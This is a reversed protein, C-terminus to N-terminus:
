IPSHARKASRAVRAARGGHGGGKSAPKGKGKGKGSKGSKVGKIGKGKDGLTKGKVSKDGKSSKLGKGKNRTFSRHSVTERKMMSRTEINMQHIIDMRAAHAMSADEAEDPDEPWNEGDEEVSEPWDEAGEEDAGETWGEAGDTWGEAGETWGEEESVPDLGEYESSRDDEMWDEEEDADEILLHAPPPGKPRTPMAKRLGAAPKPNAKPKPPCVLKSKPVAWTVTTKPVAGTSPESGRPGSRPGSRRSVSLAVGDPQSGQSQEDSGAAHCPNCPSEEDRDKIALSPEKIVSPMRVFTQLAMLRRGVGDPFLHARLFATALTLRAVRLQLLNNRSCGVIWFCSKHNKLVEQFPGHVTLVCPYFHSIHDGELFKQLQPRSDAHVMALVDDSCPYTDKIDHISNTVSEPMAGIVKWMLDHSSSLLEKAPEMTEDGYLAGAWVQNQDDESRLCTLSLRGDQSGESWQTEGSAAIALAEDLLVGHAEVVGPAVGLDEDGQPGTVLSSLEYSSGGASGYMEALAADRSGPLTQIALGPM